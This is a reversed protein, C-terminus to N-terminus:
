RTRTRCGLLYTPVSRITTSTTPLTRCSRTRTRASRRADVREDARTARKAQSGVVSRPASYVRLASHLRPNVSTPARPPSSPPAFDAFPPSQRDVRGHGLQPADTGDQVAFCCDCCSRRHCLSRALLPRRAVSRRRPNGAVACVVVVVFRVLARRLPAVVPRVPRAFQRRSCVYVRRTRVISSPSRSFNRAFLGARLVSVPAIEVALRACSRVIDSKRMCLGDLGPARCEGTFMKKCRNSVAGPGLSCGRSSAGDAAKPRGAGARERGVAAGDETEAASQRRRHYEVSGGCRPECGQGETATSLGGHEFRRESGAVVRGRCRPIAFGESGSALGGAFPDTVEPARAGFGGGFSTAGGGCGSCGWRAWRDPEDRREYRGAGCDSGRQQRAREDFAVAAHAPRIGAPAAALQSALSVPEAPRAIERASRGFPVSFSSRRRSVPPARRHLFDAKM